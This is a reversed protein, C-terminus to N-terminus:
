NQAPYSYMTERLNVCIDASALVVDASALIIDASTLIVDAYALVVIGSGFVVIGSRLVVIGSGLVFTGSSFICDVSFIVLFVYNFLQCVKSINISISTNWLCSLHTYAWCCLGLVHQLGCLGWGSWLKCCSSTKKWRKEQLSM